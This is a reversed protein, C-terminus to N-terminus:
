SKAKMVRSVGALDPHNSVEVFGAKLLINRVAAEQNYGIELILSGEKALYDKAHLAINRIVDLGDNGGDLAKHPEFQVIEPELNFIDDTRIYPPNSCIIDFRHRPKIASFLDTVVLLVRNSLGQDDINLLALRVAHPDVDTAVIYAGEQERAIAVSIAGSGTGIELISPQSLQKTEQLVIEVLTETDPRPILIGPEVRLSISWFEKVGIILAIPERKARRSVLRRYADREAQTLPKEFNM